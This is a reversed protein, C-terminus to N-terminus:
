NSFASALKKMAAQTEASTTKIYHRQTTVVAAHRLIKQIVSDDVGLRNLNSALGRRFAHWGHWPIKAKALAPIIDRRTVNMLVLPRGTGGSFIFEGLSKERHVELAKRLVPLVPVAATSAPTKTESIHSAWVARRVRLEDGTFDDWRLGRIESHRLGTLAAVLVATRSPEPLVALMSQIEALSYAHTNDMPKGNRPLMVERMPNFRLVGTRVGYRFAGSLFNKANKIQTHARPKESAFAALVREGDIAGFGRLRKSGLHPKILKFLHEYGFATSPRLNTECHSLYATSIFDAVTQTPEPRAQRTNLPSLIEEALHRVSAPTRYENGFPALKKKRSVWVLEGDRLERVNYALLWAKGKRYIRGRQM